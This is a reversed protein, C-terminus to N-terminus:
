NHPIQLHETFGLFCLVHLLSPAMQDHELRRSTKIPSEVTIIPSVDSKLM